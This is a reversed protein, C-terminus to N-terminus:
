VERDYVIIPQVLAVAAVNLVHQGPQRCPKFTFAATRCRESIENLSVHFIGELDLVDPGIVWLEMGLEIRLLGEGILPVSKSSQEQQRSREIGTVPILWIALFQM